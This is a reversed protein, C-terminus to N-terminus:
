NLNDEYVTSDMLILPAFSDKVKKWLKELHRYVTTLGIPIDEKKLHSFIGAATTHSGQHSLFYDRITEKQKTRYNTKNSIQFYNEIKVSLGYM